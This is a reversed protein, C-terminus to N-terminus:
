RVSEVDPPPAFLSLPLDDKMTIKTTLITIKNEREAPSAPPATSEVKWPIADSVGIWLRMRVGRLIAVEAEFVYCPIHEGTKTELDEQGLFAVQRITPSVPPMLFTASGMPVPIALGIWADFWLPREANAPRKHVRTQDPYRKIDWVWQGDSIVLQPFEGLMEFRFLNPRKFAVRFERETRRLMGEYRTESIIVGEWQGGAIQQRRAEIEQILKEPTVQGFAQGYCLGVLSAILGWVTIWLM